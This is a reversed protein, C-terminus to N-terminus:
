CSLSATSNHNTQPLISTTTPPKKKQPVANQIERILLENHSPSKYSLRPWIATQAPFSHLHSSTQDNERYIMAFMFTM